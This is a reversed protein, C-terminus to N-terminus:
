ATTSNDAAAAATSPAFTQNINASVNSNSAFIANSDNLPGSSMNVTSPAPTSNSATTSAQSVTSAVVSSGPVFPRIFQWFIANVGNSQLQVSVSNNESRIRVARVQMTLGVVLVTFLFALKM